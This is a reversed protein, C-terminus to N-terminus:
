VTAGAGEALRSTLAPAIRGRVSSAHNPIPVLTWVKTAFTGKGCVMENTLAAVFYASWWPREFRSLSTPFAGPRLGALSVRHSGKMPVVGAAPKQRSAPRYFLRGFHWTPTLVILDREGRV